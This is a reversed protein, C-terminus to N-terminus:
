HRNKRMYAILGALGSGLLLMTSPEPVPNVPTIGQSLEWTLTVVGPIEFTNLYSDLMGILPFTGAVDTGGNLLPDTFFAPFGLVPDMVIYFGINSSLPTFTQSTGTDLNSITGAVFNILAVQSSSDFLLNLNDPNTVDNGQYFFGFRTGNYGSSLPADYKKEILVISNPSFYGLDDLDDEVIGPLPNQMPIAFVNSAFIIINFLLAMSIVFINKM